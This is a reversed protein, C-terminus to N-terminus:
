AADAATADDTDTQHGTLALFVEDLNPQRMAIDDIDVGGSHVSRLATMLGDGGSDVRVTVRRTPEDVQSRGRDLRGLMEAVPALDERERVHVEVVQGGIRRKLEAPTGAAVARGHDVIV